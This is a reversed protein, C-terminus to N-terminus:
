GHPTSPRTLHVTRLRHPNAWLGNDLFNRICFLFFFYRIVLVYQSKQKRKARKAWVFSRLKTKFFVSIAYWYIVNYTHFTQISRFTGLFFFLNHLNDAILIIIMLFRDIYWWNRWINEGSNNRKFVYHTILRKIIKKGHMSKYCASLRFCPPLMALNGCVISYNCVLWSIFIVPRDNRFRSKLINWNTILELSHGTLVGGGVDGDSLVNM